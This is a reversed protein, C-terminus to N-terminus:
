LNSEVQQRNEQADNPYLFRGRPDVGKKRHHPRHRQAVEGQVSAGPPGPPLPCHHGLELHWVAGGEPPPDQGGGQEVPHLLQHKQNRGPKAAVRGRKLSAM